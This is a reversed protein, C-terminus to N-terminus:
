EAVAMSKDKKQCKIGGIQIVPEPKIEAKEMVAPPPRKLGSIKKHKSQLIKTPSRRLNSGLLDQVRPRLPRVLDSSSVIMNPPIIPNIPITVLTIIMAILM